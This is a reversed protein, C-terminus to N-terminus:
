NDCYQFPKARDRREETVVVKAPCYNNIEKPFFVVKRNPMDDLWSGNIFAWDIKSFMRHEGPKDNWTYRCLVPRWDYTVKQEVINENENKFMILELITFDLEVEVLLRAYNLSVKKETSQDVMLPKGVLSGIKSLGKKSRDKFDFGSLRIWIPVTHVEDRTFEIELSWAKVIFSKNDFHFMCGQVVENQEEATDFRVLVLGNKVM